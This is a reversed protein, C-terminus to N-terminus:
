SYFTWYPTLLLFVFSVLNFNQNFLLHRFCLDRCVLYSRSHWHTCLSHATCKVQISGSVRGFVTGTPRCNQSQSGRASNGELDLKKLKVINSSLTGLNSQLTRIDSQCPSQLHFKSSAKCCFNKSDLRERGLSHSKCCRSRCSASSCM